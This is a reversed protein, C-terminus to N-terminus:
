ISLDGRIGGKEFPPILAKNASVALISVEGKSFPPFSALPSRPIKLISLLM